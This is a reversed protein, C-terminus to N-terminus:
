PSESTQESEPNRFRDGIRGGAARRRERDEDDAREAAHGRREEDTLDLRDWRGAHDYTHTDDTM